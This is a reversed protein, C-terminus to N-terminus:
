RSGFAEGAAEGVADEIKEAVEELKEKVSEGSWEVPAGAGPDATSSQPDASPDAPPESEATERPPDLTVVTSSVKSSEAAFAKALRATLTELGLAEFCRDKTTYFTEGLNHLMEVAKEQQEENLHNVGSAVHDITEQVKAKFSELEKTIALIM